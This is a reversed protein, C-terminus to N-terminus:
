AAETLRRRRIEPLGVLEKHHRELERLRDAFARGSAEAPWRAVLGRLRERAAVVAQAVQLGTVYLVALSLCFIMAVVFAGRGGGSSMRVFSGKQRWKIALFVGLVPGLTVARRGQTRASPRPGSGRVAM